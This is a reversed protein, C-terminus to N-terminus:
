LKSIDKHKEGINKMLGKFATLNNLNLKKFFESHYFLLENVFSVIKGIQPMTLVWDSLINLVRHIQNMPFVQAIQVVKEDPISLFVAKM